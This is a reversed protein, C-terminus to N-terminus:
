FRGKIEVVKVFFFAVKIDLFNRSSDNLERTRASSITMKIKPLIVKM